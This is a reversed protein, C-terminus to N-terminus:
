VYSDQNEQYKKVATLKHICHIKKPIILSVEDTTELKQLGAM